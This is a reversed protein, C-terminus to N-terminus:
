FVEAIKLRGEIGGYIIKLVFASLKIKKKVHPFIITNYYYSQLVILANFISDQHPKNVLDSSKRFFM